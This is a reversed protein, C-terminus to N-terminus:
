YFGGCRFRPNDVNALASTLKRWPSVGGKAVAFAIPWYCGSCELNTNNVIVHAHPVHGENDDHYVIAVEHSGFAAKAWETALGRLNELSIGDKPDPSLVYHKYTRCPLGGWPTDNSYSRRTADMVAAWDFAARERDDAPADINVLDVALARGGKALYRMPGACSTHGSIAKLVPM